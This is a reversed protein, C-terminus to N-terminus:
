CALIVIKKFMSWSFTEQWLLVALSLILLGNFRFNIGFRQDLYSVLFVFPVLHELVHGHYLVCDHTDTVNWDTKILMDKANLRDHLLLWAFFM